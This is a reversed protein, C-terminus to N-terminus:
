VFIIRIITTDINFYEGIGGCVGAIIRNTESRYLRSPRASSSTIPEEKKPENKKEAM